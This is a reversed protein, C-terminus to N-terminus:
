KSILFCRVLIQITLDWLLSSFSPHHLFPTCSCLPNWSFSPSFRVYSHLPELGCLGWTPSPELAWALIDRSGAHLGWLVRPGGGRHSPWGGGRELVPASYPLHEGGGWRGAARNVLRSISVPRGRNCARQGVWPLFHSPLGLPWSFLIALAFLMSSLNLRGPNLNQSSTWAKKSMGTFCSGISRIMWSAQRQICICTVLQDHYSWSRIVPFQLWMVARSLLAGQGECVQLSWQLM